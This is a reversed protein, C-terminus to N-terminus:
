PRAAAIRRRHFRKCRRGDQAIIHGIQLDTEDVNNVQHLEIRMLIVRVTQAVVCKVRDERLVLGNDEHIVSIGLENVLESISTVVAVDLHETIHFLTRDGRAEIHTNLVMNVTEVEDALCHHTKRLESVLTGEKHLHHVVFKDLVAIIDRLVAFVQGLNLVPLPM